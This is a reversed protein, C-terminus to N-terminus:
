TAINSKVLLKTAPDVRELQIKYAGPLSLDSQNEISVADKTTEGRALTVSSGTGVIARPPKNDQINAKGNQFAAGASRAKIAKGQDGTRGTIRGNEVAM